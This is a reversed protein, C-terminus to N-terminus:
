GAPSAGLVASPRRKFWMVTNLLGVTIFGLATLGGIGLNALGLFKEKHWVRGTRAEVASEPMPRTRVVGLLLASGKIKSCVTLRGLGPEDAM